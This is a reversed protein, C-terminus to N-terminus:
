PRFAAAAATAAPAALLGEDEDDEAADAGPACEDCEDISDFRFISEVPESGDLAVAVPVEDVGRADDRATGDAEDDEDDEDPGLREHSTIM